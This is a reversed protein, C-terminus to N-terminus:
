QFYKSRFVYRVLVFNIPVVICFVPIPAWTESIGIWLFFNLFLLHLLYNLRHSLAFGIGRKVSTNSKFTFHASLYFNCFWAIIYGISYAINTYLTEEEGIDNLWVLLLYIGYHIGTAIVGVFAFRIFERFKQSTRIQYSIESITKMAQNCISVFFASERQQKNTLQPGSFVKLRLYAICFGVSHIYLVVCTCRVRSHITCGIPM